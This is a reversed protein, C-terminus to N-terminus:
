GAAHSRWYRILTFGSYATMAATSALVAIAVSSVRLFPAAAFYIGLSVCAGIISQVLVKNSRNTINLWTEFVANLTFFFYIMAFIAGLAAPYDKKALVPYVPISVAWLTFCALLFVPIAVAAKLLVRTRREAGSREVDLITRPLFHAFSLKLPNLINYPLEAARLIGLAQSGFQHGAIIWIVGVHFQAILVTPVLYRAYLFHRKAVWGVRDVRVRWGIGMMIFLCALLGTCAHALVLNPLSARALLALAFITSLLTAQRFLEVRLIFHHRGNATGQLKLSEYAAVAFLYLVIGPLGVDTDIEPSLILSASLSAVTAVVLAGLLIAGYNAEYRARLLELRPRLYHYVNSCCANVISTSLGAFLGLYVYLGFEELALLRLMVLSLVFNGGSALAQTLISASVKSHAIDRFGVPALLSQLAKM